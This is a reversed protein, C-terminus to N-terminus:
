KNLGSEAMAQTTGLGFQQLPNLPKGQTMYSQQLVNLLKAKQLDNLASLNIMNNAQLPQLGGVNNPYSPLSAAMQDNYGM